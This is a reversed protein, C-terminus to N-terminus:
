DNRHILLNNNLFKYTYIWAKTIIIQEELEIHVWNVSAAEILQYAVDKLQLLLSDCPLRSHHRNKFIFRIQKIGRKKLYYYRATEKRRFEKETENGCKVSLDHGSGDYEIDIHNEQDYIDLLYHGLPYNLEGGFLEWLHHQGRSCPGNKGRLSVMRKIEREEKVEPLKMLNSVGYRDRMTKASKAKIEENQFVNRCGYISEVTDAQKEKIDEVKMPNDVGYMQLFVAKRKIYGCHTCYDGEGSAQSEKRRYLSQFFERGCGDCRVKVKQHGGPRALHLPVECYQNKILNPIMKKYYAYNGKGMFISVTDQLLM